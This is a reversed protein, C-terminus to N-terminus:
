GAQLRKARRESFTRHVDDEAYHARGSRTVRRWSRESALRYVTGAPTGWLAAIDAVTLWRGRTAPTPCGMERRLGTWESGDWTHRPDAGCRVRAGEGPRSTRVTATLVGDCGPVVCGGVDVRKVPDPYAARRAAEVAQDVEATLDGVAPHRALWFLNVLLFEALPGVQRVPPALRREDAVLGSWSALTTVVRSRADAACGNLAFGPLSGGGVKERLGNAAAGGLAVGCEAYLSPLARVGQGLRGRCGECLREGEAARGREGGRPAARHCWVGDCCEGVFVPSEM